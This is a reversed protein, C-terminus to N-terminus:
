IESRIAWLDPFSPRMLTSALAAPDPDVGLRAGSLRYEGIELSAARRLGPQSGGRDAAPDDRVAPWARWVSGDYGVTSRSWGRDPWSGPGRDNDARDPGLTGIPAGDHWARTSTRAGDAADFAAAM